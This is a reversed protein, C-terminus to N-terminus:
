EEDTKTLLNEAKYEEKLSELWMPYEAEVKSTLLSEKLEEKSEELTPNKAEQKDTVKIIHYGFESKAMQPAEDVKMAMAVKEFEAVMDGEGFYGLDGGAEANASDVSYEKALDEFKAGDKLKAMVEKAKAEEEVLIHSARIQAPTALGEKSEEYATAIEEDTVEVEQKVLETMQLYSIIDEKLSDLSSGQKELEVVLADESGYQAIITDLEKQIDEDKVEVKKKKAEKQVLRDAIIGDLVGVGYDEKMTQFLEENTIKEGDVKGVTDGLDATGENPVLLFALGMVAAVAVGTIINSKVQKSAM